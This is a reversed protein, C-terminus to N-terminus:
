AFIRAKHVFLGIIALMLITLTGLPAEPIVFFGASIQINNDCLVDIGVDYIENNNIDIIIDYKGPILPPNWVAQLKWEGDVMVLLKGESNTQISTLTLSIREPISDGNSWSRDQVVYIPYTQDAEYGEGFVYVTDSPNFEYVPTPEPPIQTNTTNLKPQPPTWPRMLPYRDFAILSYEQHIIYRTDGIGDSEPENQNPGSYIDDGIYDSWYNGGSPYGDDWVNNYYEDWATNNIFNNHFIRNNGVMLIYVGGDNRVLNNESIINNGSDQLRIGNTNHDIYNGSINNNYAKILSIGCISNYTLNNRVIVNNEAILDPYHIGFVYIGYEFLTIRSNRVTVNSRGSLDIGIGTGQGLPNMTGQITYGAGDVIVDDKEVVISGYINSTLTYLNGDRIILGTSPDVRGDARIYIAGDSARVPIILYGSILATVLLETLLLSKTRSSL